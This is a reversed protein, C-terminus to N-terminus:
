RKAGTLRAEFSVPEGALVDVFAGTAAVAYAADARADVEFAVEFAVAEGAVASDRAGVDVLAAVLGVDTSYTGAGIFVGAVGAGARESPLEVPRRTDVDVLAGRAVERARVVAAALVLGPGVAASTGGAEGP